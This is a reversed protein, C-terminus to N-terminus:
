LTVPATRTVQERALKARLADNRERGVHLCVLLTVDDVDSTITCYLFAHWVLAIMSASAHHVVHCLMSKADNNVFADLLTNQGLSDVDSHLMHLVRTTTLLEQVSHLQILLELFFRLGLALKSVALSL